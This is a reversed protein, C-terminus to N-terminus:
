KVWVIPFLDSSDSKLQAHHYRDIIGAVNLLLCLHSSQLGPQGWVFIHSGIGFIVLAFLAPPM